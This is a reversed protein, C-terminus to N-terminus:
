VLSGDRRRFRFRSPPARLEIEVQQGDCMVQLAAHRGLSAHESSPAAGVESEWDSNREVTYGGEHLLRHHATCCTMGNAVSTEGGDAWHVVHHVDVFRTADCGPWQCCRDRALIARRMAAPWTRAKRGISLPEGDKMVISSVSCDCALRRATSAAISSGHEVFSRLAPAGVPDPFEPTQRLTDADVHVMVQFRDATRMESTTGALTADLFTEAMLSMADARLQRPLRVAADEREFGPEVAREGEPGLAGHSDKFLVDEARALSKLFAGGALPTLRLTVELMGDADHRFNLARKGHCAIANADEDELTERTQCDRYQRVHRNLASASMGLALRALEREKDPTAIRTLVVVKSWSLEGQRFLEKIVPLVELAYGVRLRESAASPHIGCEANLWGVCSRAGRVRWGKERDFDPLLIVLHFLGQDLSRALKRLRRPMSDTPDASQGSRRSRRAEAQRIREAAHHEAHTTNCGACEGPDVPSCPM